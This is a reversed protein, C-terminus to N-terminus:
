DSTWFSRYISTYSKYSTNIQWIMDAFLFAYYVYMHMKMHMPTHIDPPVYLGLHENVPSTDYEKYLLCVLTDTQSRAISYRTDMGM